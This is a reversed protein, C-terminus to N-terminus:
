DGDEGVAIIHNLLQRVDLRNCAGDRNIDCVAPDLTGGTRLRQALLMADVVDVVGDADIDAAAVQKPQGLREPPAPPKHSLLYLVGVGVVLLFFLAGVALVAAVRRLRLGRRPAGAGTRPETPPVPDTQQM